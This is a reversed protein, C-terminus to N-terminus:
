LFLCPACSASPNVLLSHGGCLLVDACPCLASMPSSCVLHALSQPGEHSTTNHVCPIRGDHSDWGPQGCCCAAQQPPQSDCSFNQLCTVYLLIALVGLSTGGNICPVQGDHSDWGLQGCCRSAQKSPQSDHSPIGGPEAALWLHHGMDSLMNGSHHLDGVLGHMYEHLEQRNCPHVLSSAHICSQPVQASTRGSCSCVQKKIRRVDGLQLEAGASFAIIALCGNDVQM